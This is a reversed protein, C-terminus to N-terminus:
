HAAVAAGVGPIASGVVPDQARSAKAVTDVYVHYLAKAMTERTKRQHEDM